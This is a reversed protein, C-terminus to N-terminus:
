PQPRFAATGCLQRVAITPDASFAMTTNSLSHVFNTAAQSLSMPATIDHLYSRLPDCSLAAQADVVSRDPPQGPLGFRAVMWAPGIYKEHGPRAHRAVETHSGIPNALSYADFIYVDPGALYGIVGIAPINVALSFPLPSRAAVASSPTIPAYPDTIVLLEQHGPPVRRSVRQLLTGAQGSLARRYDAATVPHPNQTADVWNDRENSIFNVQPNLSGKPPIYRMWGACAVAWVLVGVVPVAAITRMQHSSVFVPLCAAFFAPLLLRAHMYDGGLHVVYVLDVLGAALPTALMLVGVRDGNGWWRSARVMVLPVALLLPLWVTYPAVFNWLYTFGQAWWAAGAGKALGTNPAVLAFYGMRFVQYGVPIVLAAGVPGGFRRLRGSAPSWGPAAIVVALAALFVAAALGLEPRILPGLGMVVASAIPRSRRGEVRVLALFSVGLWLFVMSMELGSTAFEWVGAVVSVILLGLPFVTSENRSAALRQVARYGTIFGASTCFLGLIVSLWELAVFPLVEHFFTLSFLWLPDSTVEVREGLNYVLGHGGVLNDIIRFNIFADEDVWRYMWAGVLVVVVPVLIPWWSTVGSSEPKANSGVDVGQDPPNTATAPPNTATAPANTATASASPTRRPWLRIPGSM